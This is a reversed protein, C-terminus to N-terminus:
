IELPYGIFGDPTEQANEIDLLLNNTIKKRAKVISVIIKNKTAILWNDYEDLGLVEESFTKVNKSSKIKAM